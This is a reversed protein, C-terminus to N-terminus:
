VQELEVLLQEREVIDGKKVMIQSIVGERPATIRIEMKMAELVLLTQGSTVSEGAMVYVEVVQGPMQAVLRADKGVSNGRRRGSQVEPVKLTQVTEGDIKIYRERGQVATYVTKTDPLGDLRIRWVGDNLRSATLQYVRGDIVACYTGDPQQELNVTYTRDGQQYSYIM